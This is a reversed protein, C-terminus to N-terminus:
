IHGTNFYKTVFTAIDYNPPIHSATYCSSPTLLSTCVYKDKELYGDGDCGITNDVYHALIVEDAEESADIVSENDLAFIKEAGNVVEVVATDLHYRYCGESLDM